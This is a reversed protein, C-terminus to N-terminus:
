KQKLVAKGIENEIQDISDAYFYMEVSGDYIGRRIRLHDRVEDNHFLLENFFMTNVEACKQEM